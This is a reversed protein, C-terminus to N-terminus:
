PNIQEILFDVQDPVIRIIRVGQPKSKIKVKYKEAQLDVLEEYPVEISFDSANIKRFRSVGIQFTVQVSSPFARLEKNAQFNVGKLPVRVTKEAYIDTPFTMLIQNPVYKVGKVSRLSIKQRITDSINDLRVYETYAVTITDLIKSPAYILVSDPSYITDSIYYQNMTSVKGCFAVPVRKSKGETFIYDLTDPNVSLIKTSLNLQNSVLKLIEGPYVMVHNSKKKYESFDFAIPYFGRGLIYNLLVTGRDKVRVGVESGSEYTFVVNNPVNKIKIPINIETEYDKNLTQILWFGSAIVFFFLFILLERYKDSLLFGKIKRSYKLYTYKNKKRVFM